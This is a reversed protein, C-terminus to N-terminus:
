EAGKGYGEAELRKEIQDVIFQRGAFRIHSAYNGRSEKMVDEYIRDFLYDHQLIELADKYEQDEPRYDELTNEYGGIWESVSEQILRKVQKEHMNLQRFAKCYWTGDPFAKAFDAVIREAEDKTCDKKVVTAEKSQAHIMKVTYKEM